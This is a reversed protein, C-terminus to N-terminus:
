APPRSRDPHGNDKGSKFYAYLYIIVLFAQIFFTLALPPFRFFGANIGWIQVLIEGLVVLLTIPLLDRRELPKRVGWLLLVTWGLMLPAGMGMAYRYDDGPHFVVPRNVLAFLSPSLMTCAAILDLVAGAWYCIRLWTISSLNM